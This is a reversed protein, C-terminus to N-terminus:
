QEKQETSAPEVPTGIPADQTDPQKADALRLRVFVWPAGVSVWLGALAIHIFGYLNYNASDQPIFKGIVFYILLLGTMGLIFRGALTLYKAIGNRSVPAASSFGVYRKNICYGVGIGFMVGGPVLAEKGPLYLIMILSLVASAYIASRFRLKALLTETKSGLFLYGCIVIGGVVLGGLVDIPFHVGLYKLSINVWLCILIVVFFRFGKKENICWYWCVIPLLFLYLLGWQLLLEM